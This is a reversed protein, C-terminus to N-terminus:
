CNVTKGNRTSLEIEKFLGLMSKVEENLFSVEDNGIPLGQIDENSYMSIKSILNHSRLSAILRLEDAKLYSSFLLITECHPIVQKCFYDFRSIWNDLSHHTTRLPVNKLLLEIEDSTPYYRNITGIQEKPWDVEGNNRSVAIFYLESLLVDKLQVLQEINSDIIPSVNKRSNHEKLHVAIFYFLTAAILSYALRVIFGSLLAGGSFIEISNKFVIDLTLVLTISVFFIIALSKRFSTILNMDLTGELHWSINVM